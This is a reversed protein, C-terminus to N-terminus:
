NGKHGDKKQNVQTLQYDAIGDEQSGADEEQNNVVTDFLQMERQVTPSFINIELKYAKFDACSKEKACIGM